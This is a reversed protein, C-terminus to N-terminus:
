EIPTLEERTLYNKNVTNAAGEDTERLDGNSGYADNFNGLLESNVGNAHM